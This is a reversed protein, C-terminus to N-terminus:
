VFILYIIEKEKVSKSKTGKKEKVGFSCGTVTVV